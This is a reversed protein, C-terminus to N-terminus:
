VELGIKRYAETWLDKDEQRQCLRMHSEFLRMEDYSEPMQERYLKMHRASAEQEGLQAYCMAIQQHAYPRNLMAQLAAISKKYQKTMFYAEALVELKLMGLNYPDLRAARHYTEIAGESDGGYALFFSWFGMIQTSNPNLTMARELHRRASEYEGREQYIMGMVGHSRYDNDDIALAKRANDYARGIPNDGSTSLSWIKEIETFAIGAYAAACGPDLEIAMKYAAIADDHKGDHRPALYNGRLLYDLASLNETPKRRSQEINADAIRGPLVTVIARVVDDQVEFIDELERDYRDAWIHGGASADILQATIRVRNGAKRVSGEVVYRVGLKKAADKIDVATGKVAFSSNRAIVFLEPFRSLETIIDETIGDSFYEQEPDGSMNDFPLVAISPKDPLPLPGIKEPGTKEPGATRTVAASSLREIAVRYVRLPEALNKLEREGLDEFDAEVKGRVQRYADGSVCIGGPEALGELRATVNVGEGYIDEGEVIIDGLHVGIRLQIPLQIRRDGANNDGRGAMRNQIAIACKVADVVSAFEVLTGDGMLKVIRGRHEAIAPDFVDQRHAKLATLAGAEDLEMLRSYGVVDAALIATLRREV